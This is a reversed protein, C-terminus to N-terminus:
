DFVYFQGIEGSNTILDKSTIIGLLEHNEVVPLKKIKHQILLYVADDILSNPGITIVKKTMIDMVKVKSALKNLATVKELVDRETLIGTVKKQKEDIAILSGMRHKNMSQAAEKITATESITRAPRMIEKIRM